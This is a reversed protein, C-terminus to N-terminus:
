VLPTQPLHAADFHDILRTAVDAMDLCRYPTYRDKSAPNPSPTITLKEAKRMSVAALEAMPILWARQIGGKGLDLLVALLFMGDEERFTATRVDFQTYGLTDEEKAVRGKVQITLSRGTVKDHVVLDIGGDDAIPLFPSLRGASALMLQAGVITEGVKGIQTSTLASSM